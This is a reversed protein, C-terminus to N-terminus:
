RCYWWGSHAMAQNFNKVKTKARASKHRPNLPIFFGAEAMFKIKLIGIKLGDPSFRMCYESRKGSM